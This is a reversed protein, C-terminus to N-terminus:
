AAEQPSGIGTKAAAARRAAFFERLKAKFEESVDRSAVPWTKM